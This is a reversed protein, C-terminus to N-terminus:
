LLVLRTNNLMPVVTESFVEGRGIFYGRMLRNLFCLLDLLMWRIVFLLLRM